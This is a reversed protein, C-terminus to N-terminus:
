HHGHSSHPDRVGRSHRAQGAHCGQRAPPEGHVTFGFSLRLTIAGEIGQSHRAGAVNQQVHDYLPLTLRGGVSLPGFTFSQAIHLGTSGAYGTTESRHSVGAEIGFIGWGASVGGAFRWADGLEYQGQSFLGIYGDEQADPFVHYRLDLGFGHNLEAGGGYSYLKGLRLEGRASHDAQALSDIADSQAHATGALGLSLLAAMIIVNRGM